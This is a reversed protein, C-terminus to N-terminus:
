RTGCICHFLGLIAPFLLLFIVGIASGVEIFSRESIFAKIGVFFKNPSNIGLIEKIEEQSNQWATQAKLYENKAALAKDKKEKIEEFM